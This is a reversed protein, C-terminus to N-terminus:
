EDTNHPKTMDRRMKEEAAEARQALRLWLVGMELLLAKDEPAGAAQALQICDAAYQRYHEVTSM